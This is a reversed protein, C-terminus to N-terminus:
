AYEGLIPASATHEILMATLQAKTMTGISLFDCGEVPTWKGPLESVEAPFASLQGPKVAYGMESDGCRDAPFYAVRVVPKIGQAAQRTAWLFLGAAVRECAIRRVESSTGCPFFDTLREIAQM